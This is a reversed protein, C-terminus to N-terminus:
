FTKRLVLAPWSGLAQEAELRGNLHLTEGTLLNRWAGLELSLHTTATEAREDKPPTSFRIAALVFLVDEGRRREFAMYSRPNAGALPVARYDGFGYLDPSELRDALLRAIVAQKIRGDRWDEIMQAPDGGDALAQRRADYDVPRRNDPDVFSFDWFETGQYFDPAGPLTCKLVVRAIGLRAGLYAFTRAIPAIKHLFPSGEGLLTDIVGLTAQEYAEDPDTWSTRRKSERLAKIAFQKVRGAFSPLVTVDAPEILLDLPLAAICSQFLFYADRTDLQHACAKLADTFLSLAERWLAPSSTAALLRGRADEGRKTDHTSTANLAAPWLRAREVMAAHFSPLPEGFRSPDGGVENLAILRGYRYFLTDELSKAMLPGTLQQFHATLARQKLDPARTAFTELMFDLAPRAADPLRERADQAAQTLITKDADDAGRADAYTRYVPFTTILAILAARLQDQDIDISFPRQRALKYLGHTLASLESGFADTLLATKIAFLQQAYPERDDTAEQYIANFENEQDSDVFVQDLAALLEYGTAGAIPWNRLSEGHELIKEVLIYFGPGVASKLQNLYAVPDALGDIHDLRIGQIRGDGVLTLLLEHVRAFVAADEIRVGALASVDFFRRYNLESSSLRWYGLRYHQREILGHLANRGQETRPDFIAVAEALARRLAPQYAGAQALSAKAQADFRLLDEGQKTSLIAFLDILGDLKLSASAAGVLALRMIEPYLDPRVPFDQDFYSLSFVGAKANFSLAIDGAGLAQAYPKGLVPLLVKGNAGPRHFDIDFAPAHPSAEGWELVSRWWLNQAGSIGMHNPVFDVILGLGHGRLANSFRIFGQLGGLEPNIQAYDNVDYGHMSGPAAKTIPSVYVHTVGLDRLYPIIAAAKDFTFDHNLQLRYTAGPPPSALRTLPDRLGRGECALAAAVRAIPGDPEVLTEVDRSLRRRWNPHGDSPGPLNAQQTEGLADEIQIAALASPTRALFRLCGEVPPASARDDDGAPLLEEKLADNFRTRDRARAERERSALDADFVGFCERLDIDLGRWWGRFTPLDHTSVAALAERPFDRPPAFGGSPNREFSLLRYSLVGSRMIAESFGRPATGLDEAIVLARARHSEIRLVGLLAELPYDVYAGSAATAGVPILFLRRLQFAHDIRLAGAHLMNASVLDRFPRLEKDQLALPDFPPLGWDQGKPGLPDPPAGISMRELYRTPASWVESGSRDAGVALDRYLGIAMGAQRAREHAAALQLDAIWQLWAHFAIQKQNDRRFQAVEPSNVHRYAEPWAGPWMAGSQAFRDSLADFTAHLELPEGRRTRFAAFADSDNEGFRKWLAEFLGRKVTWVSAYDLLAAERLQALRGALQPDSQLLRAIETPADEAISAPDILATQLFLRSSPSYPSYRSADAPFLAHAPSLGLFSAGWRASGAALDGVDTYDGVGFQRRSRLGYTQATFGFGRRDDMIERPQWCRNPATVLLTESSKSGIRLTLRHYGAAQAPLKLRNKDDVTARGEGAAGDEYAISWEIPNRAPIELPIVIPADVDCALVRPAPAEHFHRLRDRARKREAPSGTAFGLGELVIRKAERNTEVLRGTQDHYHSLVGAQAAIADIEDEDSM